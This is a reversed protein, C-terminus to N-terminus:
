IPYVFSFRGGPSPTGPETSVPIITAPSQAPGTMGPNDKTPQTNEVYTATDIMVLDGGGLTDTFPRVLAMIRGDEMERPQIKIGTTVELTAKIKAFGIHGFM